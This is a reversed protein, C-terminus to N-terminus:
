RTDGHACHNSVIIPSERVSHFQHIQLWMICRM